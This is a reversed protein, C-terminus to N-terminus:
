WAKQKKRKFEASDFIPKDTWIVSRTNARWLQRCYRMAHWISLFSKELGFHTVTYKM